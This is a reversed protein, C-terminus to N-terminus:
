VPALDPPLAPEIGVRLPVTVPQLAVVKALVQPRAIVLEPELQEGEAAAPGDCQEVADDRRVAAVHRQPGVAVPAHRDVAGRRLGAGAEFLAAVRGQAVRPPTRM